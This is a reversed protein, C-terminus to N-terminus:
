KDTKAGALVWEVITKLDADSVQSQAPMPVAGWSGSGGAKVKAILRAEAGTDGKYKAAVAQYAPGVVPHDIGHCATCSNKQALALGAPETAWVLSSCAASLLAAGRIIKKELKM